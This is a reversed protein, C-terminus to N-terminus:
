PSRSSRWAPRWAHAGARLRSPATPARHAAETAQRDAAALPRQRLTVSVRARVMPPRMRLRDCVRAEYSSLRRASQSSDTTSRVRRTERLNGRVDPEAVEIMDTTQLATRSASVGSTGCPGGTDSSMAGFCRQSRETAARAPAAASSEHPWSGVRGIAPLRSEAPPTGSKTTKGAAMCSAPILALARTGNSRTRTRSVRASPLEANSEVSVNVSSTSESGSFRLTRMLGAAGADPSTICSARAYRLVAPSVTKTPPGTSTATRVSPTAVPGGVLM